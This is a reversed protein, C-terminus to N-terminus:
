SGQMPCYNTKLLERAVSSVCYNNACRHLKDDPLRLYMDVPDIEIGLFIIKTTTDNVNKSKDSFGLRHLITILLKLAEIGEQFTDAKILFDDLYVVAAELGRRCLM